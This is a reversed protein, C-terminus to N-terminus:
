GGTSQTSLEKAGGPKTTVLAQGYNLETVLMELGALKTWVKLLNSIGTFTLLTLNQQEATV